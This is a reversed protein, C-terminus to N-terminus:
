ELELAVVSRAPLTATFGDESTKFATFAAPEIANPHDFTNHANMASATLVRGSLKGAKAGQLDCTVTESKEPNLNCLTVHIKGDKRSVSVNV